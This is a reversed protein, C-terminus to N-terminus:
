LGTKEQQGSSFWVLLSDTLNLDRLERSGLIESKYQAPQGHIRSALGSCSLNPQPPSFPNWNSRTAGAGQAGDLASSLNWSASPAPTYLESKLFSPM